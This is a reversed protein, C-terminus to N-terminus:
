WKTKIKNGGKLIQEYLIEGRKEGKSAVLIVDFIENQLLWEIKKKEKTDLTRSMKSEIAIVKKKFKFAIFDPFGTGESMAKTFTNFTHKAPILKNTILDVNNAWKCVVWGKDQLDHRVKLEFRKGAARSKRGM